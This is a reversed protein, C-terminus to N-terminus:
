YQVTSDFVEEQDPFELTLPVTIPSPIQSLRQHLLCLRESKIGGVQSLLREIALVADLPGFRCTQLSFLQPM